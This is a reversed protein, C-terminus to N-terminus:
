IGESPSLVTTCNPQIPIGNNPYFDMHAYRESYGLSGGCTHISDVFQADSKDLWNDLRTPDYGIGTADLGTIRAVKPSLLSGAKGAIHAGLSFGIMHIKSVETVNAAVLAKIMDAVDGGTSSVGLLSILYIPNGAVDSWDVM